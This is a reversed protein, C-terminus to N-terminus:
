KFQHPWALIMMRVSPSGAITLKTLFNFSTRGCPVMWSVEAFALWADFACASFVTSRMPPRTRVMLDRSSSTRLIRIPAVLVNSGHIMRCAPKKIVLSCTFSLPEM